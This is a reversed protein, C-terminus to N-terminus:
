RGLLDKLVVDLEGWSLELVADPCLAAEALRDGKRSWYLNVDGSQDRKAIIFSTLSLTIAEYRWGYSLRHLDIYSNRRGRTIPTGKIILNTIHAMDAANVGQIAERGDETLPTKDVDLEFHPEVWYKRYAEQYIKAAENYTQRGAFLLAKSPPSTERIDIAENNVSDHASTFALEYIENRLEAPLTLFTTPAM